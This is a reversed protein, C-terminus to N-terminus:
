FALNWLYIGSKKEGTGSKDFVHKTRDELIEFLLGLM